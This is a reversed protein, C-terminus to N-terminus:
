VRMAAAFIPCGSCGRMCCAKKKKPKKKSLAVSNKIIATPALIGEPYGRLSGVTLGRVKAAQPRRNKLSGVTLNPRRKM